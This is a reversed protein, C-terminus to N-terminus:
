APQPTEISTIHPLSCVAVRETEPYAIVLTTRMLIVTEPHRVQHAEGGALRVAFPQFPRRDIWERIAEANM